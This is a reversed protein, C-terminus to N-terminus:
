FAGSRAFPARTTTTTTTLQTLLLFCMRTKNQIVDCIAAAATTQVQVPLVYMVHMYTM